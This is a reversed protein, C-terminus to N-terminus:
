QSCTRSPRSAPRRSGHLASRTSGVTSRTSRGRRRSLVRRWGRSRRTRGSAYVGIARSGATSRPYRVPLYTAVYLEAPFEVEVFSTDLPALADVLTTIRHAIEVLTAYCDDISMASSGTGAPCLRQDHRSPEAAFSREFARRFRRQSSSPTAPHAM